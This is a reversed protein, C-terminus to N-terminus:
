TVPDCYAQFFLLTKSTEPLRWITKKQMYFKFWVNKREWFTTWKPGNLRLTPTRDLGFRKFSHILCSFSPWLYKCAPWPLGHRSIIDWSMVHCSIVHRSVVHYSIVHCSMFNCLMIHCSMVHCSMVHCSIVHCSVSYFSITCCPLVPMAYCLMSNCSMFNFPVVPYSMIYCSIVHWTM